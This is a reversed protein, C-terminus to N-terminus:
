AGLFFPAHSSTFVPPTRRLIAAIPASSEFDGRLFSRVEDRNWGAPHSFECYLSLDGEYFARAGHRAAEPSTAPMNFVAVNLFDIKAARGAIFDRTRLAADRSEAPTGFLVYLYTGIGAGALAELIRDIEELRTGKGLADLVAQDGSELGLQLMRCGSDALRRCFAPDALVSSFRAFGYWPAGPPNEALARLHLPAIENDTFHFLGPSFRRGLEALDANARAAPLGRYASGEATEPCFGCRRWPCGTSFNYPTIRTPSFYRLTDFDGFEPCVPGRPGAGALDAGPEAELEADLAPEGPGPLLADVLGDFTEDGGLLGLSRWSTVLGGGLLIRTRPHEARLLGVLAFAPLAQSLFVISVGVTAEPDEALEAALRRSFFGYFVSSRHEAAAAVLDARRLPSRNADRYDALGAEAGFPESVFKLSRNLDRVARVYRDFNAYTGPSRLAEAAGRRRRLAGRTWTDEPPDAREAELLYELGEQCFDLCRVSRGRSRLYGALRAIGLPPEPSRAGPPYILLM